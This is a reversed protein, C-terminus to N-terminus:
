TLRKLNHSTINMCGLHLRLTADRVRLLEEKILNQSFLVSIDSSIGIDLARQRFLHFFVNQVTITEM